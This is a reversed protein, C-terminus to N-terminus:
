IVRDHLNAHVIDLLRELVDLFDGEFHGYQTHISIKYTTEATVPKLSHVALVHVGVADMFSALKEATFVNKPLVKLIIEDGYKRHNAVFNRVIASLSGGGAFGHDHDISATPVLRVGLGNGFTIPYANEPYARIGLIDLVFYAQKIYREETVIEERYLSTVFIILNYESVM